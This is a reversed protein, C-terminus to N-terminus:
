AMPAGFAYADMALMNHTYSAHLRESAVGNGAAGLAVFLPLLHEETPHNEAAYPAQRRYDLLAAINGTGLTAAIWAAFDAVWLPALGAGYDMTMRHLNHTVSGSGIILVGQTRLPRLAVGLRYHEAPGGDRPLALQTVPIDAAPYMPSLPVWAGHDLGRATDRHVTFGAKELLGAAEEAVAPAGPAPYRLPYLEPAFGGFDHITDPRAALSIAPRHGQWHASIVLIAPPKELTNGLEGLFRRAPSDELALAPSGHSLFLTPTKSM